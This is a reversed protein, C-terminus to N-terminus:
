SCESQMNNRLRGAVREFFSGNAILLGCLVLFWFKRAIAFAWKHQPKISCYRAHILDDESQRVSEMTATKSSGHIRFNGITADIQMPASLGSMRVFLDYDMCFRLHADVKGADEYLSKSWFASMQPVTLFAYKMVGYVFQASRKHAIVKDNADILNMNGYIFRIKPHEALHRGIALLAGPNYTDDSNLWSMFAGTAIEFGNAIAASQGGDPASQIHAFHHRYREVIAMTADTSGGDMLILELNPYNQEIISVITREIFEGQNYSPIVVSLRPLIATM